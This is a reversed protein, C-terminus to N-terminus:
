IIECECHDEKKNKPPLVMDGEKKTGIKNKNKNKIENKKLVEKILFIITENVNEGTKASTEFYKFGLEGCYEKAENTTIERKILDIKNGIIIVPINDIEKNLHTKISETWNILNEFSNQNSVDFMVMIGEAKSFFSASLSQFKETGATDWLEVRIIENNIKEDKSFFEIGATALYTLNFIGKSYRSLFSTKGVESDGIILLRCKKSM